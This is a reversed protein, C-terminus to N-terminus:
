RDADDVKLAELKQVAERLEKEAKEIDVGESSTLAIRAPILHNEWVGSAKWEVSEENTKSGSATDPMEAAAATGTAATLTSLAAAAGLFARRSVGDSM